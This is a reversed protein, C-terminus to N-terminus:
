GGSVPIVSTGMREAGYHVGSGGTFLGYGYANHIIDGRGAGGATLSRAM